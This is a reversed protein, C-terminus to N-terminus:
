VYLANVYICPANGKSQEWRGTGKSGMIDGEVYKAGELQTLVTRGQGLNSTFQGWNGWGEGMGGRGELGLIGVAWRRVVVVEPINRSKSDPVSIEL